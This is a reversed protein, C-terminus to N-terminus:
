IEEKEKATTKPPLPMFGETLELMDALTQQLKLCFDYLSAEKLMKGLQDENFDTYRFVEYIELLHKRSLTGKRIEHQLNAMMRCITLEPCEGYDELLNAFKSKYSHNMLIKGELPDTAKTIRTPFRSISSVDIEPINAHLRLAGQRVTEQVGEEYSHILLRRWSEGDMQLVQKLQQESPKWDSENRAVGAKLLSNEADRVDASMLMWANSDIIKRYLASMQRTMEEDTIDNTVISNRIIEIHENWLHKQNIHENWSLRSISQKEIEGSVIIADANCIMEHQYLLLKPLKDHLYGEEVIWPDLKGHPSLVVPINHSHAWKALQASPRNWCDHIHVVDPQFEEALQKHNDTQSVVAVEM